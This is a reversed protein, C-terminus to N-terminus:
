IVKKISLLTKYSVEKHKIADHLYKVEINDCAVLAQPQVPHYLYGMHTHVGYVLLVYKYVLLASEEEWM